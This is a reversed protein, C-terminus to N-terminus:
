DVVTKANDRLLAFREPTSVKRQISRLLPAAREDSINSGFDIGAGLVDSAWCIETLFLTRAWDLDSLPEKDTLADMLRGLLDRFEDVTSAGVLPAMLSHSRVPGGYENLGHILLFREEGTLDIAVLQTETM